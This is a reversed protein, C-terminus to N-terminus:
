AKAKLSAIRLRLAGRVFRLKMTNPSGGANAMECAM